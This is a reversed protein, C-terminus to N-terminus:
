KRKKLFGPEIGAAKREEALRRLLARVNEADLRSIRGLVKDVFTTKPAPM